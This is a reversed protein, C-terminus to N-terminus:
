VITYIQASFETFVALQPHCFGAPFVKVEDQDVPLLYSKNLTNLTRSHVTYFFEHQDDGVPEVRYEHMVDLALCPQCRSHHRKERTREGDPWSEGSSEEGDKGGEEGDGGAEKEKESLGRTVSESREFGEEREV